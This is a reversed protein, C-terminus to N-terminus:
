LQRLLIYIHIRPQDILQSKQNKEKFQGQSKPSNGKDYFCNFSFYPKM